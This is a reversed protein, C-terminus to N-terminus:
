LLNKSSDACVIPLSWRKVSLFLWRWTFAYAVDNAAMTPGDDSDTDTDIIIFQHDNSSCCTCVRLVVEEVEAEM